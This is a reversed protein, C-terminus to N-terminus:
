KRVDHNKKETLRHDKEHCCHYIELYMQPIPSKEEPPPANEDREKGCLM